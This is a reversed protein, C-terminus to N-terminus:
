FLSGGMAALKKIVGWWLLPILVLLSICIMGMVWYYVRQYTSGRRDDTALRRQAKRSAWIHIGYVGTVGGIVTWLPIRWGILDSAHFVEVLIVGLGLWAMYEAIIKLM